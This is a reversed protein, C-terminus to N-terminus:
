FSVRASRGLARGISSEYPHTLLGKETIISSVLEPPTVDFVPNFVRIGRPAIRRGRIKELEERSREEIKVQDWTGVLDFSSAPAAAHFPVGQRSALVAIQYTGIKNFVHGTRMVRDAGVIVRDVLGRSIIYGVASDAVLTVAFGDERLEYATLRAGQLSPRTEPVFVKV